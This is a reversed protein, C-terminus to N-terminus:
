VDAFLSCKQPTGLECLPSSLSGRPDLFFCSRTHLHYGFLAPQRKRKRLLIKDLEPAVSFRRNRSRTAIRALTFFFSFRIFFFFVDIVRAAVFSRLSSTSWSISPPLPPIGPIGAIKSDRPLFVFSSRVSRPLVSIYIARTRIGRALLFKYSSADVRELLRRPVYRVYM